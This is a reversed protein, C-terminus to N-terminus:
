ETRSTAALKAKLSLSQLKLNEALRLIELELVEGPKHASIVQHLMAPSDIDQGGASVILDHLEVGAQQAPGDQALSVVLAGSPNNLGYNSADEAALDAVELGLTPKPEDTPRPTALLGFSHEIQALTAQVKPLESKPAGTVLVYATDNVSVGTLTLVAELGQANEGSFSLTSARLGALTSEGRGVREFHKWKKGMNQGLQEILADPDANHDFLLVSAYCDGRVIQVSDGLPRIKWGAPVAIVFRNAPDRYTTAPTEASRMLTASILVGAALCLVRTAWGRSACSM